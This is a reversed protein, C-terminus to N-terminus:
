INRKDARTLDQLPGLPLFLHYGVGVCFTYSFMYRLGSYHSTGVMIHQETLLNGTEAM